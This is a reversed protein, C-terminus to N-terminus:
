RSKAAQRRPIDYHRRQAALTWIASAQTCFIVAETLERGIAQNDIDSTRQM